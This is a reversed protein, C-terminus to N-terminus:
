RAGPIETQQTSTQDSPEKPPAYPAFQPLVENLEPVLLEVKALNTWRTVNVGQDQSILDENAPDLGHVLLLQQAHVTVKNPDSTERDLPKLIHWGFITPFPESVQNLPDNMAHMAFIPLLKSPDVTGIDGGTQTVNPEQSNEVVLNLFDAGNLAQQRLQTMRQRAAEIKDPWHSMVAYTEIWEIAAQRKLVTPDEKKSTGLFIYLRSIDSAPIELGNVRIAPGEVGDLFPPLAKAAEEQKAGAYLKDTAALEEPSQQSRTKYKSHVGCGSTLWVGVLCFVLCIRFSTM